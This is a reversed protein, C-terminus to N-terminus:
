HVELPLLESLAPAVEALCLGCLPGAYGGNIVYPIVEDATVCVECRCLACLDTANEWGIVLGVCRSNRFNSPHEDDLEIHKYTAMM